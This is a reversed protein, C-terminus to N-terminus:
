HNLYPTKFTDGLAGDTRDFHPKPPKGFHVGWFITVTTCQKTIKASQRSFWNSMMARKVTKCSVSRVAQDNSSVPPSIRKYFKVVQGTLIRKKKWSVSSLCVALTLEYQFLVVDNYWCWNSKRFYWKSAPSFFIFLCSPISNVPPRVVKFLCQDLDRPPPCVRSSLINHEAMVM